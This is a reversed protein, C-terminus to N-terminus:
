CAKSTCKFPIFTHCANLHHLFPSADRPAEVQRSASVRFVPCENRESCLLCSPLAVDDRNSGTFILSVCEGACALDRASLRDNDHRLSVPLKAGAYEGRASKRRREQYSSASGVASRLDLTLAAFRAAVGYTGKATTFHPSLNWTMFPM